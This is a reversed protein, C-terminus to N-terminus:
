PIFVHEGPVVVASGAERALQGTLAAPRAPDAQAAISSLTDGPKVVYEEGRTPPVQALTSGGLIRLPLALLVLVVLVVVSLVVTLVM